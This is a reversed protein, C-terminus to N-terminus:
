ENDTGGELLEPNDHINGIVECISAIELLSQQILYQPFYDPENECWDPCTFNDVEVYFGICKEACYEGGSGDQKYEGFKVVCQCDFADFTNYEVIDGEFIKVGNKDILDTYQGVTEPIIKVVDTNDSLWVGDGDEIYSASDTVWKGNDARKGRFLIERM